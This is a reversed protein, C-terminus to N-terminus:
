AGHKKLFELTIKWAEKAAKENYYMGGYAKKNDFAHDADEFWHAEARDYKGGRNYLREFGRAVRPPVVHDQNGHFM